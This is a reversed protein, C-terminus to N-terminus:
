IGQERSNIGQEGRFIGQEQACPIGAYTPSLAGTNPGSIRGFGWFRPFERYKERNAPFRPWLRTRVLSGGGGVLRDRCLEQHLARSAGCCEGGIRPTQTSRGIQFRVLSRRLQDAVAALPGFTEAGSDSPARQSRTSAGQELILGKISGSRAFRSRLGPARRWPGGGLVTSAARDKGTNRATKRPRV